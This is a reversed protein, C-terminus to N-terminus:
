NKIIEKVEEKSHLKYEELNQIGANFLKRARVRGIGRLRCLDLLEDKVGYKIRRRLRKASAHITTANLLFAIESLCYALWETNRSRAHVVGPPIAFDELMRAETEENIWANLAKTTYYKNVGESDQELKMFSYDNTISYMEEWVGNEKSKPCNILPRSEIANTLALLYDISEPKKNKSIFEIFEAATLPDLYLESVRKGVPTAILMTNKERIFDLEKLELVIQEILSFLEQTNKYQHAFFTSEFFSYLSKFDKCHNSAILALVHSRLVSQSSLKSFIKELSGLIYQDVVKEKEAPNCLLVGVGKSDYRPRGARGLMQQVELNPIFESYAGNFRKLDKVVVWSAPLDLGIALTTTACLAKICRAQKFGHEVLERQKSPLGAHHFAIGQEVCKALEICQMSPTGLAKLVRQSLKLCDQKEGETLFVNTVKGLQKALSEANKRSSVFFLAQGSRQNESLAKVALEPLSDTIKQNLGELHLNRGDCVGKYLVTPRYTSEFLKASLWENLEFANPITASLCLLRPVHMLKTLVIELTAGRSSDNLLHVEDVVVLGIENTWSAQHRLLSDMKESTVIIVDFERLEESSDDFDGTSVGVSLGFPKLREEFELKKEAALARLPVVYVSKTKSDLYNEVIKFLALFTKGSATPASVVSRNSFAFGSDFFSQQMPNLEQFGLKTTIQSTTLSLM